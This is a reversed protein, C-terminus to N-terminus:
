KKNADNERDTQNQLIFKTDDPFNCIKFTGISNINIGSNSSNDRVLRCLPEICLAFQTPSFPCGQRVGSLLKVQRTLQRNIAINANMGKVTKIIFESFGFAVTICRLYDRSVRDFTTEQDLLM